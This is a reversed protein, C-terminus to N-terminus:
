FPVVFTAISSPVGDLFESLGPSVLILEVDSGEARFDYVIWLEENVIVQSGYPVGKVQCGKYRRLHASVAEHDTIPTRKM